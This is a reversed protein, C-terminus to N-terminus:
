NTLHKLVIASYGLSDFLHYPESDQIDELGHCIVEDSLEVSYVHMEEEFYGIARNGCLFMSGRDDKIITVIQLLNLVGYEGALVVINGKAYLISRFQCCTGVMLSKAANLKSHGQIALNV